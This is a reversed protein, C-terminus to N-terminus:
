QCRDEMAAIDVPGIEIRALPYVTGRWEKRAWAIFERAFFGLLIGVAAILLLGVIKVAM